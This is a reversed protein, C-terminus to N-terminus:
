TMDQMTYSAGSLADCIVNHLGEHTTVIFSINMIGVKASFTLSGDKQSETLTQHLPEVIPQTKRMTYKRTEAM